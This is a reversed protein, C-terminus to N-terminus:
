NTTGAVVEQIFELYKAGLGAPRFEAKFRNKLLEGYHARLSPDDILRGAIEVYEDESGALLDPMEALEAGVNYHTAHPYKRIVPPISAAMAELISQGASVPFSNLYIDIMGLMGAIDPIHEVFRIRNSLGGTEFFTRIPTQVGAGAIVHYHNPHDRLIRAITEM